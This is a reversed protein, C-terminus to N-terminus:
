VLSKITKIKLRSFFSGVFKSINSVIRLDVFNHVITQLIYYQRTQLASTKFCYKLQLTIDMM